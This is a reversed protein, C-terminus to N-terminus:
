EEEDTSGNYTEFIVKEKQPIMFTGGEFNGVVREKFLKKKFTGFDKIYVRDYDQTCRSLLSFFAICLQKSELQSIGNEKAFMKYFDTRNM